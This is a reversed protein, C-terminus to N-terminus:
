EREQHLRLGLREGQLLLQGQVYDELQEILAESKFTNGLKNLQADIAARHKELAAIRSANQEKAIAQEAEIEEKLSAVIDDKISEKRPKSVTLFLRQETGTPIEQGSLEGRRLAGEAWDIVEAELERREREMLNLQQRCSLYKRVFSPVRVLPLAVPLAATEVPVFGEASPEAVTPLSEVDISELLASISPAAVSSATETVVAEVAVPEVVPRSNHKVRM